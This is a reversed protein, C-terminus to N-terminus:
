VNGGHQLSRSEVRSNKEIYMRRDALELFFEGASMHAPKGALVDPCPSIAGMSVSVHLDEKGIRYTFELRSKMEQIRNPLDMSDTLPCYLVAIFEDGGFRVAFENYDLEQLLKKSFEILIQDGIMHGYNDNIRKFNNLDFVCLFLNTSRTDYSHLYKELQPDFTDWFFKKNHLGTLSDLFVEKKIDKYKAILKVFYVVLFSVATCIILSISILVVIRELNLFGSKPSIDLHWVANQLEIEYTFFDDLIEGSHLLTVKKGDTPDIRWLRWSFEAQTLIEFNM